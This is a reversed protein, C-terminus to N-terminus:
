RVPSPGGRPPGEGAGRRVADARVASGAVADDLLADVTPLPSAVLLVQYSFMGRWLRILLSNFRVLALAARGDGLAVPFPAPIGEMREIRFGCQEFLLRLTKFTYLRTHTLDLIGRRGYNFHGFLAQFRVIAFTVNGTTVVFRPMRGRSAVRLADLLREPERLHEIIDLLLVHDYRGLDADLVDPEKWPTFSRFPSPPLPAFQDAGDVTCGKRALERALDGPGCGIDLVQSGEPIADIAATHSSAYGLKLGYRRNGAPDIDFKRDYFINLRHLRSGVTALVVDKAYKIGAVRCIEDGYYTPIAVETVRFGGLLLQIIIETDFHFVNSNREFPLRALAAVRYARFGSHFESLRVGLLRNQLWTLVKNGAFKYFPMGGKRAAGPILMRSGFVADARGDLLPQVLDPICEPAYQGDGHLLVVFDFGHRIAHAYGLKQNGGYGQNTANYLVTVPYGVAEATLLGVEFTRDRSSDDIVLVEVDMARIAPPIRTLVKSLTSEAEYAVVFILVRPKRSGSPEGV